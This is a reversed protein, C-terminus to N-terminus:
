DILGYMQQHTVHRLQMRQTKFSNLNSAMGTRRGNMKQMDLDSLGNIGTRRGFSGVQLTNATKSETERFRKNLAATLEGYRLSIIEGNQIALNGLFESFMDAVSM